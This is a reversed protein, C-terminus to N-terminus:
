EPSGINPPSVYARDRSLVGARFRPIIGNWETMSPGNQNLIM